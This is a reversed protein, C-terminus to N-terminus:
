HFEMNVSIWSSHGIISRCTHLPSDLLISNFQMKGSDGVELWCSNVLDSTYDTYPSGNHVLYRRINIQQDVRHAFAKMLALHTMLVYVPRDLLFWVVLSVNIKRSKKWLIAFSITSPQLKVSHYVCHVTTKVIQNLLQWARDYLM